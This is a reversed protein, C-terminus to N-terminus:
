IIVKILSYGTQVAVPALKFWGYGSLRGFDTPPIDVHMRKSNNLQELCLNVHKRIRKLKHTLQKANM